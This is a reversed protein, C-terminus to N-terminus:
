TVAVDGFGEKKLQFSLLAQARQKAGNRLHADLMEKGPRLSLLRGSREATHLPYESTQM